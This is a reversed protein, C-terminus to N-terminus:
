KLAPLLPPQFRQPQPPNKLRRAVSGRHTGAPRRANAGAGACVWACSSNAATPAAAETGDFSHLCFGNAGFDEKLEKIRNECEARSKYFRWTEV